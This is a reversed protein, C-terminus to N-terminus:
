FEILEDDNLMGDCDRDLIRFIRQLAKEFEPKLQKTLNDQLPAIPYLVAKQACSIIDILGVYGKASCEIGM